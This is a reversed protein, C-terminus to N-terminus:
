RGPPAAEGAGREAAGGVAEKPAEPPAVLPLPLCHLSGGSAGFSAAPPVASAAGLLYHTIHNHSM